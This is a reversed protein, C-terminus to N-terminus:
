IYFYMCYICVVYACAFVNTQVETCNQDRNLCYHASPPPNSIPTLPPSSVAREKKEEEKKEITEHCIKKFSEAVMPTQIPIPTETPPSLAIIRQGARRKHSRKRYTPSTSAVVRQKELPGLSRILCTFSLTFYFCSTKPQTYTHHQVERLRCSNEWQAYSWYSPRCHARVIACAAARSQWWAPLCM